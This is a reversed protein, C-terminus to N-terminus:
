LKRFCMSQDATVRSANQPNAKDREAARLAADIIEKKNPPGVLSTGAYDDAYVNELYARDGRANAETWGHDFAELAKKDAESCQGLAIPSSIVLMFATAILSKMIPDGKSRGLKPSRDTNANPNTVFLCILLVFANIPM